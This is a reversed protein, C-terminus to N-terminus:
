TPTVRRRGCYGCTGGGKDLDAGVTQVGTQANLRGSRKMRSRPTPCPTSNASLHRCVCRDYLIM